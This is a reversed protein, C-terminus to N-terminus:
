CEGELVEVGEPIPSDDRVRFVALDVTVCPGVQRGQGLSVRWIGAQVRRVPRPRCSGCLEALVELAPELAARESAIIPPPSWKTVVQSTSSERTAVPERLPEDSQWVFVAYGGLGCAIFAAVVAFSALVKM